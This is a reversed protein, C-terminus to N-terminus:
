ASAPEAHPQDAEAALEDFRRAPLKRTPLFSALVILGAFLFATKLAM